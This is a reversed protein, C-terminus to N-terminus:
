SSPFSEIRKGEIEYHGDVYLKLVQYYKDSQFSYTFSALSGIYQLRIGQETFSYWNKHDHGAFVVQTSGEEVLRDFLGSNIPGHSVSEGVTTPDLESLIPSYFEHLPKHVFLYNPADWHDLHDMYWAVQDAAIPAYERRWGNTQYENTDLVSITHLLTGSTSWIPIWQNSYGTINQPGTQLWCYTYPQLLQVLGSRPLGVEGDHNGFNLTWPIAKEELYQALQHMAIENFFSFVVDGNILIFDPATQTIAEELYSLTRDDGLLPLGNLHLDSVVLISLPHDAIVLSPFASADWPNSEHWPPSTKDLPSRYQTYPLTCIGLM